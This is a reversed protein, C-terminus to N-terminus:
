YEVYNTVERPSHIALIQYGQEINVANFQRIKDFHVIHKFNWSVVIDVKAHTAFAIHLMDNRFKDTLIRHKRYANFLVEVDETLFLEEEAVGCIEDYKQRVTLPADVIEASVIESVVCKFHGLRIDKVLGNSWPAFEKDFCGGVVSTDIYIRPIKM